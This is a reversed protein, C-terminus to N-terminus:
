IDQSVLTQEGNNSIVKGVHGAVDDKPGVPSDSDLGFTKNLVNYKRTKSLQNPPTYYDSHDSFDVTDGHATHSDLMYRKTDPYLEDYRKGLTIGELDKPAEKFGTEDGYLYMKILNRNGEGSNGTYWGTYKNDKTFLSQWSRGPGSRESMVKEAVKKVPTDLKLKKLTPLVRNLAAM